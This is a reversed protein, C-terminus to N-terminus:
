RLPPGPRNAQRLFLLAFHRCKGMDLHESSFSCRSAAARCTSRKIDDAQAENRAVPLRM